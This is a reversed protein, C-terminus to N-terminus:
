NGRAFGGAVEVGGGQDVGEAAAVGSELEEAAGAGAHLAGADAGHDIGGAQGDDAQHFDEGVDRSDVALVALQEAGGGIFARIDGNQRIAGIEVQAQGLSEFGQLDGHDVQNGRLDPGPAFAAQGEHPPGNVPQEANERKLRGKKGRL